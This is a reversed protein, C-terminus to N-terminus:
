VSHTENMRKMELGCFRKKKIETKGDGSKYYYEKDNEKLTSGDSGKIITENNKDKHKYKSGDDGKIKTEGPEVKVKSGDAGKIKTENKEEKIKTGDDGKIKTENKEIKVKGDPTKIKTEKGSAEQKYKYDGAPMGQSTTNQQTSTNNSNLSNNSNSSGMTPDAASSNSPMTPSTNRSNNNFSPDNRYKESLNKSDVMADDNGIAEAASSDSGNIVQVSPESPYYNNAGSASNDTGPSTTTSSSNLQNFKSPDGDSKIKVEGNKEKLKYEYQDDEYKVKKENKEIKEKAEYEKTEVKKKEQAVASGILGASLMAALVYKNLNM